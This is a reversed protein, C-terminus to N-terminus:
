DDNEDDYIFPLLVGAAPYKKRAACIHAFDSGSWRGSGWTFPVEQLRECHSYPLEGLRAKRMLNELFKFAEKYEGWGIHVDSAANGGRTQQLSRLKELNNSFATYALVKASSLIVPTLNKRAYLDWSVSRSAWSMEVLMKHFLHPVSYHTQDALCVDYSLHVVHRGDRTRFSVAYEGGNAVYGAFISKPSVDIVMPEIEPDRTSFTLSLVDGRPWLEARLLWMNPADVKGLWETSSGYRLIPAQDFLAIRNVFDFLPKDMNSALYCSFAELSEYKEFRMSAVATNIVSRKRSDARTFNSPLYGNFSLGLAENVEVKRTKSWSFGPITNCLLDHALMATECTESILGEKGDSERMRRTWRTLGSGGYTQTPSYHGNARWFEILQEAYGLNTLLSTAVEKPAFLPFGISELMDMRWQPMVDKKVAARQKWVWHEMPHGRSVLDDDRDIWIARFRAFQRLWHLDRYDGNLESAFLALDAPLPASTTKEDVASDYAPPQKPRKESATIHMTSM